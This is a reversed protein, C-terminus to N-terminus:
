PFDRPTYDPCIACSTVQHPIINTDWDGGPEGDNDNDVVGPWAEQDNWALKVPVQGDEPNPITESQVTVSSKTINYTSTVGIWQNDSFFALSGYQQAGAVLISIRYSPARQMSIGSMENYMSYHELREFEDASGGTSSM